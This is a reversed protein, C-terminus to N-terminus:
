RDPADPTWLLEVLPQGPLGVVRADIGLGPVYVLQAGSYVLPGSRLAQAIGAAQFQKK